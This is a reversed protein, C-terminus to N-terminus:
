LMMSVQESDHLDEAELGLDWTTPEPASSTGPQPSSKTGTFANTLVSSCERKQANSLGSIYHSLSSENRHKTISVISQTLVGARYLISITSARVSHCTYQMSLGAKSSIRQMMNSLTNKGIPENRFWIDDLLRYAALPHQFLRNNQPHTKSLYFKLINVGPGYM